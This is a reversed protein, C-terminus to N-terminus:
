KPAVTLQQVAKSTASAATSPTPGMIPITVYLIGLEWKAKHRKALEEAALPTCLTTNDAKKDSTCLAMNFNHVYDCRSCKTKDPNLDGMKKKLNPNVNFKGAKNKFKM